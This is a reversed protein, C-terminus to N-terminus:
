AVGKKAKQALPPQVDFTVRQLRYLNGVYSLAQDRTLDLARYSAEMETRVALPPHRAILAAVERARSLVAEPEVLENVLDYRLATQADFPEGTLALWMAAVHPIQRSLRTSGGAGGMGYAIEPLGFRATSSAIRIDTLHLLYLMGQGMAVGNIAGVIPKYRQMAMRLVEHEWGPYELSEDHRRRSMHRKVIEAQTRDPRPTKIDDGACFARTGSGTLIGVRVDDDSLFDSLIDHLDRHLAPTFANVPPNDITITAIGDSKEYHLKM